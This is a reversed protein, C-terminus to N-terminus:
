MNMDVLTRVYRRSHDYDLYDDMHDNQGHHLANDRPSYKSRGRGGGRNKADQNDAEQSEHGFKGDQADGVDVDAELDLYLDSEVNGNGNNSNGNKIRDKEKEKEKETQKRQLRLKEEREVHKQKEKQKEKEEKEKVALAQLAGGEYDWGGVGAPKM